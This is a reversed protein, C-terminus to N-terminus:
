GPDVTALLRTLTGLDIPKVLHADFGSAASRQRDSELGYGTVAVLVLRRAGDAAAARDSRLRAGVEYGDMVPLGIDLLAVEPAFTAALALAAPGDHAIRADHGMLEIAEALLEAADVNDDVVLVRRRASPAPGEVVQVPPPTATARDTCPLRVVFRSGQGPGDSHATVEGGHLRVLNRVITLGLGLGGAPRDPAQDAQAFLDFVRPLMAEDIGVGDDAVEIEVHELIRRAAFRIHGRPPTYKAANTLLNALIQALRAPDGLVELGSPAIAVALEHQRAELLPSAMEIATRAVEGIEVPQRRLEVKGQAIRSVDLLDDVLRVMHDVQQEIVRRARTVDGGEQVRMLHLATSIPALPNRLEHGLMALFQDKARSAQEAQERAAALGQRARVQDTIEHGLVFVRDTRGGGRLPGYVYSWYTTEIVGHRAIPVEVEEGIWSVGTRMVTRLQDDFGLGVLEPMAQLMPIGIVSAAPRNVLDLYRRNAVEFVLEDGAIVAMAAPAEEIVEYLSALTRHLAARQDEIDTNIGIWRDVRGAADRIPEVRTLFWRLQGDHRRLPFEMEFPAGTAISAQWRAMVAPLIAPDHVSQWGWGEMDAATTGTYEYWRPNYYEIHGDARASWALQPLGEIMARFQRESAAAQALADEREQETRKRQTIDTWFVVVSAGARQLRQRSWTATPQYHFELREAASAGSAVRLFAHHFPHEALDPYLDLYTAGLVDDRRRGLLALGADNIYQYSGDLAFVSVPEDMADFVVAAHLALEPFPHVVTSM